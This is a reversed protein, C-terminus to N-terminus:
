MITVIKGLYLTNECGHCCPGTYKFKLSYVFLEDVQYIAM